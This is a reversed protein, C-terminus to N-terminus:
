SAKGQLIGLTYSVFFLELKAAMTLHYTPMFITPEYSYRGLASPTNVKILIPCDASLGNIEITANTLVEYKNNLNKIEYPKVETFNNHISKLYIREIKNKQKNLMDTYENKNGKIKRCLLIFAKIPCQYYSVVIKSTIKKM